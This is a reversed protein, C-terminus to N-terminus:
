KLNPMSQFKTNCLKLYVDYYKECMATIGFNQVFNYGGQAIEQMKERNQSLEIIKNALDIHNENEFLIGNVGDQILNRSSVINSAIVPLQAAMAELLVLPLGEFRSPLIFLDAQSLLQPIDNRKGLFTIENGMETEKVLNMLIEPAKPDYDYSGGVIDCHFNLGREKCERLAKILIDQGKKPLNLRSVNIIQLVKGGNNKSKEHKFADIDIGNNILVSNKMHLTKSEDFVSKSVAVVKDNLHKILFLRFPSLGTLLTTDHVTHVVKIRGFFLLKLIIAWRESSPGHVHIIDIKNEKVYNILKLLVKFKNKYSGEPSFYSKIKLNLIEKKLDEDVQPGNLLLHNEVNNNLFENKLMELILKEAGGLTLNYNLHLIKIKDEM